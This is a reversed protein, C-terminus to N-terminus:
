KGLIQIEMSRLNISIVHLPGNTVGGDIEAVEVSGAPCEIAPGPTEFQDQNSFLVRFQKGVPNIAEDVIVAGVWNNQTSTNAVIVVEQESLIRSYSVIGPAGTSVGFHVGDGSIARFYCRGYRLAPQTDRVLSLRQIAQFYISNQSFPNPKGWLAERVWEPSSGGGSLGQETGYYLCPIGPLSFLCGVGLSVQEDYADPHSPNQFFFRWNQDHNDLFTVFFGSADGHTSLIGTEVQKRYEYLSHLESPALQGKVVALLKYFLPYDLAADVGIPEGEAMANRGIFHAIQEETGWVEGFTFFNKKGISQAFERISNAFNRAFLPDLYMLTDIRFGDVDFKAILYNFARVLTQFVIMGESTQYDTVLSKLSYFDGGPIIQTDVFANGQRKFFRNGQLERPWMAANLPPNPPAESWTPVPNGHEDRWLIPYPQNTWPAISGFGSYAFVDGVHHLVIDFIVYINRAHAEDVLERLETEVFQPDRSAREPDSSFRPEIALFNQFGYGHYSPSFQCNKLLPSLWLAGVGLEQLYDLQQKIGAFTGGQFDGWPQDWPQHHPPAAPNNFRDVMMFYIWMDRWDIPSPFPTLVEVNRNGVYVLKVGPEYAQDLTSQVEADWVSDPM